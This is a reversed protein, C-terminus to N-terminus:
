SMEKRIRSSAMSGLLRFNYEQAICSKEQFFFIIFLDMKSLTESAMSMEIGMTKALSLRETKKRIGRLNLNPVRSHGCEMEKSRAQFGSRLFMKSKKALYRNKVEKM